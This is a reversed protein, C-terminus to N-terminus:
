GPKRPKSRTRGHGLRRRSHRGPVRGIAVAEGRAAPRGQGSGPGSGSVANKARVSEATRPRGKRSEKEYEPFALARKQFEVAKAFDGIEAYAAALTNIPDPDKWSSLECARTAHEVARKGDRVADPGAAMLWGIADYPQPLNPYNQLEARFSAIASELEGRDRLTAGLQVRAGM